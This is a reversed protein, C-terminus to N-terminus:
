QVALRVKMHCVRHWVLLTMTVLCHCYVAGGTVFPIGNWMQRSIYLLQGAVVSIV